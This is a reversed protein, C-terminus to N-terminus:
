NQLLADIEKSAKEYEGILIIDYLGEVDASINKPLNFDRMEGVIRNVTGADWADLATKLHVLNSKLAEMDLSEHEEELINKSALLADNIEELLSKLNTLLRPTHTNIFNWDERDGAMELAKAEESLATAGINASASKLAHVYITYMRLNRTNITEEIEGIKEIGDKYYLSLTELYFKDTGGSLAIGRHVDVGEIDINMKNEPIRQAAKMGEEITLNKQKEKPIWKELITNMTITDIPKSLFDNFGNELFMERTGAVANATLAIIPLDKYFADEQGMERLHKTTEIGDMEPMKHDMLVLDYKNTKLTEIAELGSNCLDVKMKYPLLLGAAVKLNTNIDDVILVTADPATFRVVLENSESYSVNSSVGNLIDAISISHVPMALANLDKDSIAEGFETLVVIKAKKLFKIITDKNKKFLTYSVFIFAYEQSSMKELLESDNQVLTCEVGLNNISYVISDAYVERREYLIANKEKPKEVSALTKRSHIKQPLKVTFTSGKGYETNVKINGGMAKVISNTIALGLGTGEINKNRELDFQTYEGFLKQVDEPKIGRGTDKVELILNIEREGSREEYASFSVYGKDTYKIANSLINLLVQRIRTEDGVLISPIKSDINVVFRIRSDVARMRIISIVDNALSSFTYNRKIIELKGTEIKSFDLIDNIISLLNTSAQKVTLIHERALDLKDSRLALEAMGMIANMPTRIEHSMKALFDSKARNADQAKELASELRFSARRLDQMINQRLLASSILRSSSRLIVEEYESFIRERCCDDVGLFGWFEEHYFVPMILISKISQASLHEQIVPALNSVLGNICEGRSLIKEWEPFAKKYQVNVTHERGQQSEAGEVWEYLQTCYLEQNVEYNRWIYVRDVNVTRALLSMSLLLNDRFKEIDPELLIASMQNLTNMLNSQHDIAAMMKEHERLDRTYGAVVYDGKYSVRVLTIEAPIPAATGDPMQHMWQFVCSGEAFAKRVLMTSKEDSRQGDSQYEPSCEFFREMYEQKNKFGYLKVAAENCDITKFDRNWLQCCIPTTDLMLRTQEEATRLLNSQRTIIKRRQINQLLMVFLYVLILSLALTFIFLFVFREQAIIITYDFMRRTWDYVIRGTNIQDLAKTIISHLIRENVNFGFHSEERENFLVNVKFGPREHFNTLALLANESAMVLDVEGNELANIAEITSDFFLLQAYSQFWARYMEEYATGRNIGVRFGPVQYMELFPFDARSLLAYHSSYYADSWLYRDRRGETMLLSPAFAIEGADLMDLLQYFPTNKDNVVNFEIGTLESIEALIDPVIGQFEGDQENFFSVPYYDSELAVPVMSGSALLNEIYGAEEETFTRHLEYKAYELNGMRHIDYLRYIGGAIIYKSVVSIIPQLDPNETTLSVPTYVLPFFERSYIFDYAKFESTVVSEGVFADIIGARLKEIADYVSFVYVVEFRLAPYINRVSQETITDVYFGLRLGNVDTETLIDNSGYTFISLSREAIPLSMFYRQRREPTPTMEGTFDITGNEMGTLMLEWDIFEQVFPIGFLGSLLECLMTTFGANTGDSMVFAETTANHGFVFQSRAAKLEEIAAIEQETVGPIERYSEISNIDFQSKDATCSILIVLFFGLIFAITGRYM